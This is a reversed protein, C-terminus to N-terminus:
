CDTRAIAPRTKPLWPPISPQSLTGESLAPAAGRREVEDNPARQLRAHKNEATQNEYQWGLCASQRPIIKQWDRQDLEDSRRRLIVPLHNANNAEDVKFKLAVRNIQVAFVKLVVYDRIRKPQIM